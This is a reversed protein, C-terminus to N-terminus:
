SLCNLWTAPASSVLVTEDLPFAFRSWSWVRIASTANLEYDQEVAISRKRRGAKRRTEFCAKSVGFVARNDSVQDVQDLPVLRGVSIDGHLKSM